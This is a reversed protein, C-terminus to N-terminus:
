FVAQAVGPVGYPDWVNLSDVLGGDDGKCVGGGSVFIWALLCFSNQPCVALSEKIPCVKALPVCVADWGSSVMVDVRSDHEIPVLLVDIVESSLELFVEHGEVFFILDQFGFELVARFGGFDAM